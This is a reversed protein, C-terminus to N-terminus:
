GALRARLADLTQVRLAEDRQEDANLPSPETAKHASATARNERDLADSATVAARAATAIRAASLYPAANLITQNVIASQVPGTAIILDTYRLAAEAQAADSISAFHRTLMNTAESARFYPAFGIDPVLALAAQMKRDAEQWTPAELAEVSARKATSTARFDEPTPHASRGFEVRADMSAPHSVSERNIRAIIQDSRSGSSEGPSTVCGALALLPLLFLAKM